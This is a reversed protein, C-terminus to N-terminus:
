ACGGGVLMSVKGLFDGMINDRVGKTNIAFKRVNAHGAQRKVVL